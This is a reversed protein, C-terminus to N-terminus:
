ERRYAVRRRRGICVRGILRWWGGVVVVVIASVVGGVWAREDWRPIVGVCVIAHAIRGWRTSSARLTSSVHSCSSLTAMFVRRIRRTRVRKIRRITGRARMRLSWRRTSTTGSSIRSMGLHILRALPRASRLSAVRTPRHFLPLLCCSVLPLHLLLLLATEVIM